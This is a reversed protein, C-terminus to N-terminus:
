KNGSPRVPLVTGLRQSFSRLGSLLVRGFSSKRVRTADQVRFQKLLHPSSQFQSYRNLAALVHQKLLKLNVPKNVFRYIQAQNILEIVLESDSASTSVISLIEPYEQKLLKIFTTIHESSADLDCILVAVDQTQLMELAVPIDRAYLTSCVGSFLEKTARFLYEDGSLVLTSAKPIGPAPVPVQGAEALELGISVAERVIKKLQQDDWPKNVFRYVEGENISGVIANIDSYGTLLMRVTAPSVQKLERLLEVGTMGPMRQDSVVLHVHFRKAFDLAQAGDTATFVHYRKRFLKRLANVIREEDDVFLVRAKRGLVNDFTISDDTDGEEDGADNDDATTRASAAKRLSQVAARNIAVPPLTAGLRDMTDEADAPPQGSLAYLIADFFQDATQFRDDPRKSLAKRVVIDIGEPLEANLDRLSPVPDEMVARMITVSNGTFPRQGTLLQFAIVGASYIDSRADVAGGQFQEPSMYNPTGLVDGVQTMTSSDLRAIGFDTVKAEGDETILINSPKIDRHVVGHRHSYDLAKLVQKLLKITENLPLKKGGAVKRHLPEGRVYEMAIYAYEGQEGYEYISVINPHVLRGAAQAERKFRDLITEADVPDLSSRAIVKLAVTRQILPDYGLYVAGMGGQGLQGLIEYKGVQSPVSM